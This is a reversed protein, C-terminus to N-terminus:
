YCVFLVINFSGMVYTLYFVCLYLCMSMVFLCLVHLDLVVALRVVEEGVSRGGPSGSTPGTSRAAVNDM